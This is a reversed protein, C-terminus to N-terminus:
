YENTDNGDEPEAMAGVYHAFVADMNTRSAVRILTYATGKVNELIGSYLQKVVDVKEKGTIKIVVDDKVVLKLFDEASNIYHFNKGRGDLYVCVKWKDDVMKNWVSPSIYMVGRAASCTHIYRGDKLKHIAVDDANKVFEERSEEPIEGRDVLNYYLRLQALYNTDAIQEVSIGCQALVDIEEDTPPLSELELPTGHSRMREIEEKTYPKAMKRARPKRPSQGLYEYDKDKDVSGLYDDYEHTHDQEVKSTVETAKTVESESKEEPTNIERTHPSVEADSRWHGSVYTGDERWYENVWTGNRHHGEVEGPTHTKSEEDDSSDDIIQHKAKDEDEIDEEDEKIKEGVTQKNVNNETSINTEEQTENEEQKKVAYIKDEDSTSNVEETGTDEKKILSEKEQESSKKLIVDEEQEEDRGGQTTDITGSYYEEEEEEEPMYEYEFKSIDQNLDQLYKRFAEDYMLSSCYKEICAEVSVANFLVDEFVNTYVDIGLLGRLKSCFKTYTRPHIWSEVYYIHNDDSYIREIDNHISEYGLDIYDCVLFRYQKLETAYKEFLSQYKEPKEIASLVLIKPMISKLIEVTEDRPNNPVTRFDSSRLCKIQFIDCTEEFREIDSPFMSTGMVHEDGSFINREQKADPHIVYLDKIHVFQGKGNRWTANPQERYWSMLSDDRDESSLIWEIITARNRYDEGYRNDKALLLYHLCDEFSLEKKFPLTYFVKRAEEEKINDVVSKAPVKTQWDPTNRAFHFIEPSYLEEPSVVAGETPICPMEDFEGDEIWEEFEAVRRTYYKGWFYLAFARDSLLEIDKIEFSHHINLKKFFSRITDKNNETLYVESLYCLSTIGNAEFECTPKYEAGLTLNAAPLYGDSENKAKFLLQEILSDSFDFDNFILSALERIFDVHIADRNAEDIQITDIYEQLKAQAWEQKSTYICNNDFESAILQIIDNNSSMLEPEIEKLLVIQRFPEVINEEDINIIITKDLTLYSGSRTRVKLLLLQSKIEEWVDKLDKLHKTMMSLVADDEIESLNPIVSNFLIDKNDSKLGLKKFLRYWELKCSDSEEELYEKSVFSASEDYKKVISEIGDKQYIDSIYLDNPSLFSKDEESSLHISDFLSLSEFQKLNSKVYRWFDINNNDIETIRTFGKSMLIEKMIESLNFPEIKFCQLTNKQFESYCKDVIVFINEPCWERNALELASEDYEILKYSNRNILVSGNSCLIPLDKIDSFSFSDDFIDEEDRKLYSIFDSLLTKDVLREYLAKKNAIVVDSFFSKNTFTKIGFSQRFLSEVQKREEEPFENFYKNNLSYMLDDSLWTHRSNEYFTTNGSYSESAFYRVDDSCLYCEENNINNCCLVYDKLQGEKEKLSLRAEYIYKVFSLNTEFDDSIAANVNNRFKDDGVIVNLIFENEVFEVFGLNMFIKKLSDQKDNEFYEHSLITIINDGIWNTNSITFVKEDYFYLLGEFDYIADGNEDIFPFKGKRESLDIDYESVFNFFCKSNDINELLSVADNNDLVYEDLMSSADFALFHSRTFENWDDNSKFFERTSDSLHPVFKRLFPISYCYSDFDYYLSDCTYLDGEYEIFMEVDAFSDLENHSLLHKLFNNNNDVNKLWEKFDSRACKKKITEFNIDHSSLSHKYLFAMFSPSERLEQIPLLPEELKTLTLFFDDSMINEKTIETMDNVINDITAYYQDGKSDVVPVFPEDTILYEFEEQFEEIFTEYDEHKEKCEEFNPILSFISDLNYQKFEILSKIWYFFQRGAIKAITHNLEIDEIDDRAGNPVMDTNMLFPFGWNARKAPLYCYLIANDVPLLKRGERKCAFRVATKNFNLYKEPIKDYGDSRDADNNTLVDNIRNRIEEPVNDTLADSVCWSDNDKSRVIAPTSSNGFYVSVKHIKPIFLIVRETSFVNSFLDIYNNKRSRDTLIKSNRPKLAFKVRFLDKQDHNFANRISQDVSEIPTWFPYIQWPTNIPVDKSTGRKRDFRFSFTGTQLFVYDNDLFVTKFGIGKYGIAETNENKEGDNINCIAAVNKANFYEGTHQFTLFDDLIHFEVDVPISEEKAGNKKKQPYDNANQLLEYIFVEKGSQTLQKSLTDLNRTIKRAADMPYNELCHAISTIIDEPKQLTTEQTLDIGFQLPDSQILTWAFKYYANKRFTHGQAQFCIKLNKINRESDEIKTFDTNRIDVIKYGGTSYDQLFQGIFYNDKLRLFRKVQEVEADGSDAPKGSVSSVSSSSENERKTRTSLRRVSSKNDEGAERNSSPDEKTEILPIAQGPVFWAKYRFPAQIIFQRNYAVGTIRATKDKTFYAYLSGDEDKFVFVTPTSITKKFDIDTEPNSWLSEISAQLLPALNQAEQIKELEPNMRQNPSTYYGILRLKISSSSKAKKSKKGFKEVIIAYEEDTIKTAPSPEDIVYGVSNLHEIITQLGINLERCVKNLRVSM